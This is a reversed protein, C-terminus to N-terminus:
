DCTTDPAGSAIEAPEKSGENGATDDTDNTDARLGKSLNAAEATRKSELKALAIARREHARKLIGAAQQEM